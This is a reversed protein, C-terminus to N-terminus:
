SSAARIPRVGSITDPPWWDMSVRGSSPASASSLHQGNPSVHHGKRPLHAHHRAEDDGVFVQGADIPLTVLSRIPMRGAEFLDGASRDRVWSVVSEPRFPKLIVRDRGRPAGG